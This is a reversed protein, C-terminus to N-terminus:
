KTRARRISEVWSHGSGTRQLILGSQLAAVREPLGFRDQLILQVRERRVAFPHSGDIAAAKIVERKPALLRMAIEDARREAAQATPSCAGTATRAMINTWMGIPVHDLIAKVQENKSLTRVGDLVEGYAPGYRFILERRLCWYEL